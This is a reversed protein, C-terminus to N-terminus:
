KAREVLNKWHTLQLSIKVIEWLRLEVNEAYFSCFRTLFQV